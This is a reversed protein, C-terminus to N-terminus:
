SERTTEQEQIDDVSEEQEAFGGGLLEFTDFAYWVICAIIFVQKTLAFGFLAIADGSQYADLGWLLIGTTILYGAIAGAIHSARSIVGQIILAVIIIPNFHEM